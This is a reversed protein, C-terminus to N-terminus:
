VRQVEETSTRMPKKSPRLVQLPPADALYLDWLHDLVPVVSKWSPDTPKMARKLAELASRVKVKHTFRDAILAADSRVMESVRAILEEGDTWGEVLSRIEPDYNMGGLARALVEGRLEDALEATTRTANPRKPEEGYLLWELRCDFSAVIDRAERASLGTRTTDSKALWKAVKGKHTDVDDGWVRRIFETRSGAEEILELLRAKLGRQDMKTAM